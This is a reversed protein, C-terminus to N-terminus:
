SVGSSSVYMVCSIEHWCGYGIGWNEYTSDNGVRYEWGHTFHKEEYWLWAVLKGVM